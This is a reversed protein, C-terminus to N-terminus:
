NKLQKCFDTTKKEQVFGLHVGAWGITTEEGTGSPLNTDSTKDKNETNNKVHAMQAKNIVWEERPITNKMYYQPLKHGPNGYCFCMGELQVFSLPQSEDEKRTINKEEENNQKNL